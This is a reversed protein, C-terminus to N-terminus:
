PLQPHACVFPQVDTAIPHNGRAVVRELHDRRVAFVHHAVRGVRRCGVNIMRDGGSSEGEVMPLPGLERVRLAGFVQRRQRCGIFGANAFHRAQDGLLHACRQHEAVRRM